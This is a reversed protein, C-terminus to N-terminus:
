PGGLAGVLELSLLDASIPLTLCSLRGVIIEWSTNDFDRSYLVVFGVVSKLNRYLPVSEM